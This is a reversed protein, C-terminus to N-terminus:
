ARPPRLPSAPDEGPTFGSPTMQWRVVERAAYLPATTVSPLDIGQGVMHAAVHIPADPDVSGSDSHVHTVSAAHIPDDDHFSASHWTSVASMTMVALIALIVSLLAPRPRRIPVTRLRHSRGLPPLVIATM